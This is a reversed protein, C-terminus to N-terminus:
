EYRGNRPGEVGSKDAEDTTLLRRGLGTGEPGNQTGSRCRESGGRRRTKRAHATLEESKTEHRIGQSILEKEGFFKSRVGRVM